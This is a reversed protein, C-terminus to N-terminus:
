PNIRLLGERVLRTVLVIRGDEDLSGPLDALRFPEDAALIFQLEERAHAPFDLSKGEFTLRATDSVTLDALVTPRRELETHTHLERLLRLQEIQGDLVSRRSRVLKRRKRRRVDDPSLRAALRQLLDKVDGSEASRRFEVDRTCSDLAGRFADLWTYVNVGITLHLSDTDSTTAAHLWGRPLYLLDGAALTVDLVPDGPEGLEKTYRQNKLPLELAPEYVLWRKEGSVQLCFVDHTDHHVALGQAARPTYYSNCQAPHGLSSELSRCFAALPPWWHHLGQLVLTAGRDFEAAVKAVDAMGSFPVPRWSVDVLYDPPKLKEDSRVLRFAPFRLGGSELLREVEEATLLDDYRGPEDRPVVLPRREWYETLFEREEVPEVCRRLADASRTRTTPTPIAKTRIEPTRATWTTPTTRTRTRL